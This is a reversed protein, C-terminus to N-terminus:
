IGEAQEECEECAPQPAQAKQTNMHKLLPKGKRYWRGFMHRM